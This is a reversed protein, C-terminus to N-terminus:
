KTPKQRNKDSNAFFDDNPNQYYDNVLNQGRKPKRRSPDHIKKEVSRRKYTKGM